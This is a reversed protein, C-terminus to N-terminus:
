HPSLMALLFSFVGPCVCQTRLVNRRWIGLRNKRPRKGEKDGPEMTATMTWFTFPKALFAAWLKGLFLEYLSIYIGREM